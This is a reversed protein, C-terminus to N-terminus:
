LKSSIKTCETCVKLIEGDEPSLGGSGHPAELSKPMNWNYKELQTTLLTLSDGHEHKSQAARYIRVTQSVVKTAFDVFQVVSSAVGLASLPEM